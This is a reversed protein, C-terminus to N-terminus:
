MPLRRVPEHIFLATAWVPLPDVLMGECFAVASAFHPIEHAIGYEAATEYVEQKHPM